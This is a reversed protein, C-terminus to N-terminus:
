LGWPESKLFWLYTDNIHGNGYPEASRLTGDFQFSRIAEEFLEKSAPTMAFTDEESKM